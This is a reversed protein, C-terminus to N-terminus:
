RKRFPIQCYSIGDRPASQQKNLYLRLSHMSLEANTTPGIFVHNLPVRAKGESCLRFLFYPVLMSAGERFSVRPHAADTMISSIIRWEQEEEFAPHKIVAAIRLLDEEIRQFIVAAERQNQGDCGHQRALDEVGDIVKEILTAQEEPAYLCRGISFGQEKARERVALPDFGLSVGKGHVSYGRWQSLLNGNARFSAGFLMPGSVIRRSLWDLFAHLLEPQDVGALIRRTVHKNLLELTHRLEASDNMYRVDSARLEGSGVIGLVGSLSTYHYLTDTPQRTFLTRTIADIMTRWLRTTRVLLMVNHHLPTRGRTPLRAGVWTGIVQAGVLFAIRRPM